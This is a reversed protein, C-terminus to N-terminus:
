VAKTHVVMRCMVASPDSNSRLEMKKNRKKPGEFLVIKTNKMFSSFLSLLIFYMTRM